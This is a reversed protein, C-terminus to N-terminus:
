QISYEILDTKIKERNDLMKFRDAKVSQGKFFWETDSSDESYLTATGHKKDDRWQIEATLDGLDDYHLETGNKKGNVYPIVVTKEGNRYVIKNGDIVNHKWDIEMLPKGSATFKLQKGHLLFNDYHSITHVNGNPHFTTKTVMIGNKIEDKSILTGARDRKIRDGFGAVISAELEHGATYYKAEMLLEDDYEEISLPVGKEDWLTVIMRNGFEYVEERIPMGASDNIQEKLLIGEDFLQQKEVVPSHAFTYTTLGHLKGNEYSKTVKVGNKLMSVVQGDQERAEWDKETTEFGYKHVFTQSVVQDLTHDSQCAAFTLAIASFLFKRKM